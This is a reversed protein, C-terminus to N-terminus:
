QQCVERAAKLDDSITQNVGVGVNVDTRKASGNTVIVKVGAKELKELEKRKYQAKVQSMSLNMSDLYIFREAHVGGFATNFKVQQTASVIVCPKNQALSQGSFVLGLVLAPLSSIFLLLVFCHRM